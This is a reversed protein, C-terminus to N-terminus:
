IKIIKFFLRKPAKPSRALWVSPLIHSTHINITSSQLLILVVYFLSGFEKLSSNLKDNTSYYNM